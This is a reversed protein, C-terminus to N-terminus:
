AQRFRRYAVLGLLGLGTIAGWAAPEPVAGITMQWSKSGFTNSMNLYGVGAEPSFGTEHWTGTFFGSQQMSWVSSSTYSFSWTAADLDFTIDPSAAKKFTLWNSIPGGTYIGGSYTLTLPTMTDLTYGTLFGDTTGTSTIGFTFTIPSTSSSGISSPASTFGDTPSASGLGLVAAQISPTALGLAVGLVAAAAARTGYATNRNTPQM